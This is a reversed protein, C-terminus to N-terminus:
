DDGDKSDDTLHDFIQRKRMDLRRAVARLAERRDMGGEIARRYEARVVASSVEGRRQRNRPEVVLVYEGRPREAERGRALEALTATQAREYRKSIEALLTARRDSGLVEAVDALERSLRHPSLLIVITWPATDLEAVRRRRPGPKPPLFGCLTAPLPPQGAAALAATFASAGPVSCVRLGAERASRVLLFGPDSLVPTGADSVLAVSLGGRLSDILAPVKKEENHEHLSQLRGPIPVELYSLLRRARRTDEALILDVGRLVERARPSLDDLTGIPTAVIWLIGSDACVSTTYQTRLSGWSKALLGCV